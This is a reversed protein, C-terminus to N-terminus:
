YDDSNHWVWATHEIRRWLYMGECDGVSCHVNFSCFKRTVTMKFTIYSNSGRLEKQSFSVGTMTGIGCYPGKAAEPFV